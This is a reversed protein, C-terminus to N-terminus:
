PIRGLFLQRKVVCSSLITLRQLTSLVAELTQLHKCGIRAVGLCTIFDRRRM